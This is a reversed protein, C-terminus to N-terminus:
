PNLLKTNESVIQKLLRISRNIKIRSFFGFSQTAKIEELQQIMSKCENILQAENNTNPYHNQHDAGRVM